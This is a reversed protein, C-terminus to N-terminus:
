KSGRHESLEVVLGRGLGLPCEVGPHRPNQLRGGIDSTLGPKATPVSKPPLGAKIATSLFKIANDGLTKVERLSGFLIRHPKYFVCMGWKM